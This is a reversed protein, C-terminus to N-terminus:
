KARAIEEYRLQLMAHYKMAQPDLDADAGIDTEYYQYRDKGRVLMASDGAQKVQKVHPAIYQINLGIRRDDSRNPLSSHKTWGHHFSAQGPNLECSLATSEDVESITQGSFLVNNKDNKLSHEVRGERHSCPIMKMCGSQETTPSLALWVSIQDDSDFGWYTLDQHWSVYSKSHPEKIIYTVNYLLLDHGICAEVVNLLAPNTALEFPSQLITHVKSIYHLSGIQSEATELAIRHQRATESSVIDIASIFGKDLYQERLSKITM